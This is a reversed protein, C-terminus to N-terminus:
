WYKVKRKSELQNKEGIRKYMKIWNGQKDYKYYVDQTLNKKGYENLGVLYDVSFHDVFGKNNYYYTLITSLGTEIDEREIRIIQGSLNYHISCKEANAANESEDINQHTFATLRDQKYETNQDVLFIERTCEISNFAWFNVKEVRGDPNMFSEYEIYDGHNIKSQESIIEREILRNATTDYQYLYEAEIKRHFTNTRKILKSQENFQYTYKWGSYFGPYYAKKFLGISILEKGYRKETVQRINGKFDPIKPLLQGFTICPILILLIAALKKMVHPVAQNSSGLSLIKTPFQVKRIGM